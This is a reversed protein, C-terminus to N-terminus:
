TGARFSQVRSFNQVPPLHPSCDVKEDTHFDFHVMNVVAKAGPEAAMGIALETLLAEKDELFTKKDMTIVKMAYEVGSM